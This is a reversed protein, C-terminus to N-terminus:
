IANYHIIGGGAKGFNYVNYGKNRILSGIDQNKGHCFGEVFSDGILVINIDEEDIQQNLPNNFGFEDTAFYQWKGYENCHVIM